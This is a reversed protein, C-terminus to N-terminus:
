FISMRARRAIRAVQQLTAYDKPQANEYNLIKTDVLQSVESMHESMTKNDFKNTNFATGNKDLKLNLLRNIEENTYGESNQIYEIVSLSM